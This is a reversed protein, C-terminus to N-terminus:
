RHPGEHHGGGGGGEHQQPPQFHQQPAQQHQEFHQQPAQQFHQQPQQFHQQTQAHQQPQQFHQQPQAHQQPQQFHQQAQAHQQENFGRNQQVPTHRQAGIQQPAGHEGSEREHQVYAPGNQHGAQANNQRAQGFVGGHENGGHVVNTPNGHNVNAFSSRDARAHQQEQRQFSTAQLHHEHMAREEEGRPRANIGGPGGNYSVRNVTVNNIVTKNYVNHVHVEDIHSVSRNYYFHNGRWEGGEYGYGGYGCGYNVGGYFGVHPGWYGAHWIYVANEFGWYGPTWLYGPQPALVWAGPVWYYGDDGWAWYGPTWIYGEGPAVPQEYVPLAPPAINISVFVGAFASSPALTAAAVLGLACLAGNVSGKLKRKM